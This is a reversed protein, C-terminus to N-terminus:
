GNLKARLSQMNDTRVMAIGRAKCEKRLETIGMKEVPVAAPAQERQAQWERFAQLDAPNIQPQAPAPNPQSGLIPATAHRGAAGLPKPRIPIRSLGRQRLLKRIDEADMQETIDKQGKTQAYEVLERRRAKQLNDRPDDIRNLQM